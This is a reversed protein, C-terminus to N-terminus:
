QRVPGLDQCCIAVRYIPKKKKKEMKENDALLYM